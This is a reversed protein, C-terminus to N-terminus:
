EAIASEYKKGELYKDVAFKPMPVGGIWVAHVSRSMLERWSATSFAAQAMERWQEAWECKETEPFAPVGQTFHIAKANPNPPDYGVLQNWEPSFEGIEEEKCWGMTHLPKDTNQVFEPTLEPCKECDFLMLSPWEYRHLKNKVVWVKKDEQCALKFLETIDGVVMMDIDMFIARGEYNMMYPVLFRSFTFPTLGVRDIGTHELVLPTIAVPRTAFKIISHSLVTFAVPQRPDYGIFIPYKVM